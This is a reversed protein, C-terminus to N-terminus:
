IQITQANQSPFKEWIFFAESTKSSQKIAKIIDTDDVYFQM